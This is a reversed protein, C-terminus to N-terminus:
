GLVLVGLCVLVLTCAPMSGLAGAAEKMKLQMAQWAQGHSTCRTLADM